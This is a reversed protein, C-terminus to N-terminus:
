KSLLIKNKPFLYKENKEQKITVSDQKIAVNPLGFLRLRAVCVSVYVKITESNSKYVDLMM